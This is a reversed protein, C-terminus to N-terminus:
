PIEMMTLDIEVAKGNRIETMGLPFPLCRAIGYYERGGLKAQKFGFYDFTFNPDDFVGAVADADFSGAKTIAQVYIQAAVYAFFTTNGFYIDPYRQLYEHYLTRTAEPVFSSEYDVQNTVLGEVAQVGAQQVLLEPSAWQAAFLVGKYGLERAQKVVLGMNGVAYVGMDIADANTAVLKTLQPYFDTTGSEYTAEALVTLGMEQAVKASAAMMTDKQSADEMLAVAKIEPHHKLLMQYYFRHYYNHLDLPSCQLRYPEEPRSPVYQSSDAFFAKAQTLIPLVAEVGIPGIPGIIYRVGEDLLQYACTAAGSGSFKDDCTVVRITYTDNGVKFGGSKNIKDAAWEAGTEQTVGFQAALGSFPGL